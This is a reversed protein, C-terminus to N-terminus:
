ADDSSPTGILCTKITIDQIVLPLVGQCATKPMVLVEGGLEIPSTLVAVESSAIGNRAPMADVFLLAMATGGRKEDVM